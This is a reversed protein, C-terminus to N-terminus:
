ATEYQPGVVLELTPRMMLGAKARWTRDGVIGDPAISSIQQFQVVKAKTLPGFIGDQVLGAVILTNLTRQLDWVVGGTSGEQLVPMASGSPLAQWSLPGVIGDVILSKILQQFERVRGETLPGFIGDVQLVMLGPVDPARNLARQLRKVAEGTDGNKISPQGPNSM